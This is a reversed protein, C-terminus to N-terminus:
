DKNYLKNLLLLTYKDEIYKIEDLTIGYRYKCYTLISKSDRYTKYFYDGFYNFNNMVFPFSIIKEDYDIKTDKILLDVIKDLYRKQKDEM